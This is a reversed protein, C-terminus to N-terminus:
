MIEVKRHGKIGGTYQGGVGQRIRTRKNLFLAIYTYM